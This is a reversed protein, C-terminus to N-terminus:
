LNGVKNSASKTKHWDIESPAWFLRFVELRTDDRALMLWESSADFAIDIVRNGHIGWSFVNM